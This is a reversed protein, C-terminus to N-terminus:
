ANNRKRIFIISATLLAGISIVHAIKINSGWIYLSDGRLGSLVLRILSYMMLYLLFVGGGFRIRKRIAWLIFFASLDALSEYIQAPHVKAGGYAIDSLSDAPFRVGLFSGTPIGFCCGNLFCGIRGIAQGLMLPPAVIDSLTWFSLHRVRAFLICAALGGLIAGHIALGGEWIKFIALPAEIFSRPNFFALYYIRAGILSGIALFFVLDYIVEPALGKRLAEKKALYIGIIFAIAVMIGYSYIRFPGLEAVIPHM